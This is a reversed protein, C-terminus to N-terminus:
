GHYVVYWMTCGGGVWVWPGCMGSGWACVMHACWPVGWAVVVGHVVGMCVLYYWMTCGHYVGVVVGM